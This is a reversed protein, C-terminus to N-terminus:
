ESIGWEKLQAQWLKEEFEATRMKTPEKDALHDNFSLSDWNRSHKEVLDVVKRMGRQEGAEYANDLLERALDALRIIPKVHSTKPETM